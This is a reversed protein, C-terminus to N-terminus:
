HEHGAPLWMPGTAGARVFGPAKYFGIAQGQLAPPVLRHPFYVVLHADSIASGIGIMKEARRATVLSHLNRLPALLENPRGASSGQNARYLDLVEETNIPDSLSIELPM